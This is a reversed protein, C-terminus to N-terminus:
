AGPRFLPEVLDRMTIINTITGQKDTVAALEEQASQLGIVAALYTEDPNFELLPRVQDLTETATLALEVIQVYGILERNNRDRVLM